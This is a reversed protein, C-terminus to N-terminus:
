MSQMGPIPQPGYCTHLPLLLCEYKKHMIDIVSISLARQPIPTPSYVTCEVTGYDM